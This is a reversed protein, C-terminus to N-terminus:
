EWAFLSIRTELISELGKLKTEGVAVSPKKLGPVESMATAHPSSWDRKSCVRGGAGTRSSPTSINKLLYISYDKTQWYEKGIM